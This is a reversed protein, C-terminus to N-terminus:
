TNERKLVEIIEVYNSRSFIESDDKNSIVGFVLDGPVIDATHDIASPCPCQLCEELIIYIGEELDSRPDILDDDPYLPDTGRIVEDGDNIGGDDTDADYPDTGYTNTEDFDSLGDGDSDGDDTPDLPDTNFILVEDGDNVGGEDTDPNLPDTKWVNIEDRDKLGDGDSDLPDDEPVDRPNTGQEVEEGDIVGGADTDPNRPDTGHKYENLNNLKDNDSHILADSPDFPDLGHLREWYSPMGDGDDDIVSCDFVTLVRDAMAIFEGRDLPDEPDMAEQPTVIYPNRVYGQKIMYPNLNQAIEMYPRYWPEGDQVDGMEIVQKRELAELIVKVAEARSITEEPRFPTKGSVTDIEGLYGTVFGQFNAEKVIAYYWPLDGEMYPIDTFLSPSEYASPRPIICFIDLMIKAFEARQIPENIGFKIRNGAPIGELINRQNLNIISDYYPHDETVDTFPSTAKQLPSQGYILEEADNFGDGDTDPNLPNSLAMYEELNTLGDGDSDIQADAPDDPDLGYVLEWQDPMGDNDGDFKPGMKKGGEVFVKFKDASVFEVGDDSNVAIYFEGLVTQKDLLIQIILPDDLTANQRLKLTLRSDFVYFNGGTDLLAARKETSTEIIETAGPYSPDDAPIKEFKFDDLTDLDKNHVGKFVSVTAEDYPYDPPDITTDTNIDPVLFMTFIVKGDPDKVVIRTPLLPMEAPLVELSYDEDYLVVQGTEPNIEGIVEGNANKIILSDDLNLDDIIIEGDTDTLYQGNHNASDTVIKDIVGGRDRLVSVPIESDVPDIGGRIVGDRASSEDLSIAPVYINITIEQGSVNGAEDMVNLAVKRQNLDEYPGLTFLPDDFDNNAIGDGDFDENINLDNGLNRDNTPDGDNNEDINLRTDIWYGLIDGQTDFSKTADITLKKFISVNREANGVNPFPPQSDACISPAMLTAPGFTSRSGVKDFSAIKTYYFGNPLTLPLSPNEPNAVRELQLQEKPFLRAYSGDLLRILGRGDGTSTLKNGYDLMMGDIVIQEDVTEEPNIVEVIGSTVSMTLGSTYRVPIKFYDNKEITIVGQNAGEENFSLESDALAHVIQGSKVPENAGELMAVHKFGDVKVDGNIDDATLYAKKISNVSFWSGEGPTYEMDRIEADEVVAAVRTVPQNLNQEYNDPSLTYILEYGSVDGRAAEWSMEVTKNNSYNASFKNVATADPIFDNLDKNEVAGSYYKKQQNFKYNEKLYVNGGYSFVIDQDNDNEMDLFVMKSPMDADDTYNLLRESMGLENIIFIGKNSVASDSLGPTSPVDPISVDALYKLDSDIKATVRQGTPSLADNAMKFIRDTYSDLESLKEVLLGSTNTKAIHNGVSPESTEYPLYENVDPVQALMRGMYELDTGGGVSDFVKEQEDMYAILSDRMATLRKQSEYEAPLENPISNKVEAIPKNLLPDDVALLKQTGELEIDQVNEALLAYKKADRELADYSNVLGTVSNGLNPNIQNLLNIGNYSLDVTVGEEPLPSQPSTYKEATAAANQMQKNLVKVIDTTVANASEAITEVFDMVPNFDLQFNMHGIVEIRSVYDYEVAPLQLNLGLDIPLLPNLPRETLQEIHPKLLAEPVPILGKKLLCLIRMIEKLLSITVRISVPFEPIEPPPPLDPLSPLPLPPLDPLEMMLNPPEPLLPIEPLVFKVTPLDPIRVRPIKPIILPEPKFKINPWLVTVGAQIQSVDIYIDPLKPFPIIPPEPIVAFIKLLLEMLTFRASSCRDCSAQYDITLEILAQWNKLTEVANRMMEIWADVRAQQKHIYGGTYKIIADMYCIIQYAYKTFMSRWALIQRPLEKWKELIEINKEIKKILDNADVLLKDCNTQYESDSDCSWVEKVREVETELDVKWQEWDRQIKEIERKTLSPIKIVVDKSQVQILPISNIYALAQTFSNMNEAKPFGAQQDPNQQAADEDPNFAGVLSSPQPYIFYLDPLDTLKNIIEESQRDLWNTLVSPFGPIRFNTSVSARYEYNGLSTSGSFGGTSTRGSADASGEVSGDSSIASLESGVSNVAAVAGAIAGNINGAIEDCMAAPALDDVKFAWCQGGLYPGVCIGMALSMTLTPSLYMRFLSGQYPSPPWVPVPSPVGAGFVPLGPDFGAPVGMANIPGPAFYAFNIPMPICGSSCTLAALAAELGDGIDELQDNLGYKDQTQPSNQYASLADPIGDNNADQDLESYDMGNASTAQQVPAPPPTIYTNYDMKRTEPDQGASYFYTMRGTPNGAPSAGIDPFQDSPYNNDLDNGTLIKVQPTKELTASYTITRSEGAHLTGLSFIYPNMSKSTDLVEFNEGCDECSISSEDLNLTEPIVDSVMVNNLDVAGAADNSVTLTYKIEDGRRASNLPETLDEVRKESKVGLRPDLDLYIFDLTSTSESIEINMKLGQATVQKVNEIAAEQDPLLNDGGAPVSFPKFNVDDLTGPQNAPSGDYYVVVEDKLNDGPNVKIGLSGVLEGKKEIEGANNYFIRVAGADDSTVLDPYGDLNMDESKLSYIRNKSDFTELGLNERVFNGSSNRYLDICVEGAKCSDASAIVLDTEGDRDFDSSTMTIIGNPFDLFVGKDEFRPSANNNQLLRVEGSEYAVFLDDLNDGNYDIVSIDQIDENDSIIQSGIDRTFGTGSSKSSRNDIKVTPDGLVVGIESGYVMNSEGVNNGAAFLLMHKNDGTFGVGPVAGAREISIYNLGPLQSGSLETESDTIFLGKSDASSNGSFAFESGINNKSSVLKAYTGSNYNNNLDIEQDAAIRGVDTSADLALVIKAVNVTEDYVSLGLMSDSNSDYTVTFNNNLVDINGNDSLRLVQNGNKTLAAGNTTDVLEYSDNDINMAVFIGEDEGELDDLSDRIQAKIQVKPIVFIEALDRKTDNDTLVLLNPKSSSDSPVFKVEIREKDFINLSGNPNVAALRGAPKPNSLLSIAAQSRAAAGNNEAFIFWGGLYDEEFVNGFDAGLLSAFLVRPMANKFDRGSLTKVSKLEVAALTLSPGGAVVNVPGTLGTGELNFKVVGNEATATTSGMFAAFDKSADTLKINVVSESDNYAFNGDADYLKGTIEVAGSDADFTERNTELELVQSDKPQVEIVTKAPDFGLTTATIAGEGAINKARVTIAALGNIIETENEELFELLNSDQIKFNTPANFNSVLNGNSDVVELAIDSVSAYDSPLSDYQPAMRLYIDNRSRIVTSATIPPLDVLVPNGEEDTELDEEFVEPQFSASLSINGAEETSTVTLDYTGDITSIQIGEADPDEDMSEDLTGPGNVEFTVTSLDTNVINGNVDKLLVRLATSSLGGSRIVPSSPDMEIEAVEQPVVYIEREEVPLYNGDIEASAIMTGALTKSVVETEAEGQAAKVSKPSIKAYAGSLDKAYFKIVSSSDETDLDGNKDLISAKLFLRSEGDAPMEDLYDVFEETEVGGDTVYVFDEEVTDGVIFGGEDGSFYEDDDGNLPDIGIINVEDGDTIGGDDTDPDNPDTGLNYEELNTLGDNDPDTNADAPDYPNLGHEIEWLDPMGDNDSDRNPDIEKQIEELLGSDDSPDLPNTQNIVEVLDMVGGKDTDANIQSTAYIYKEYNDPLGDGDKDENMCDFRDTFNSVMIAFERKTIFGSLWEIFKSNPNQIHAKFWTKFEDANFQDVEYFRGTPFLGEEQASLVYNYYWPTGSVTTDSLNLGAFSQQRGTELIVKTAEARSIYNQPLFYGTNVSGKYGSVIQRNKGEEVCYKYEDSIDTDPFPSQEYVSDVAKKISDNFRTCQICVAGLNLKVFEERTLLEDPRITGDEYAEIIGRRFINIIKSFGESNASIDSFLLGNAVAPDYNRVLENGDTYGDGDTDEDRPDLNLLIEELDNLGDNDTDPINVAAHATEILAKTFNKVSLNQQNDDNLSALFGRGALLGIAEAMLNFDIFNGEERVIEVKDFDAAIYFEFIKSGNDDTIDFVVPTDAGTNHNMRLNLGEALFLNGSRDLIGIKKDSGGATDILYINGANFKADEDVVSVSYADDSFDKIHVGSLGSYKEFYNKSEDDVTIPVTQDTVFYVSAIVQLTNKNQVGLRVPKDTTSPLAILGYENDSISVMGTQGKVEAIVKGNEDYIIFGNSEGKLFFPNATKVYSVLRIKERTSELTLQNSSIGPRNTSNSIATFFGSDSGSQVTFQATGSTLRVPNNSSTSAINAGDDMVLNLEVETFSDSKQVVGTNSVGEVTITLNDAAGTQLAQKSASLRLAATNEAGDPIGDFDSDNSMPNADQDDPVGDGDLDGGAILQDYYDGPADSISCAMEFSPNNVKNATEAAWENMEEFWKLLPVAFDTPLEISAKIIPDGGGGGSGGGGSGGGGSGGSGGVTGGPPTGGPMTQSKTQLYEADEEQKPFDGNFNMELSDASGSGVFYMTEYGNATKGIFTNEYPNLYKKLVYSHKDDVNMSKWSYADEVKKDYAALLNKNTVTPDEYVDIPYELLSTLSGDIPTTFTVGTEQAIQELEIEKARLIAKAEEIDNAAYINPYKVTRTNGDRDMFSFFRPNDIPITLPTETLSSNALLTEETPEVNKTFSSLKVTNGNLDTATKPIVILSIKKLDTDIIQPDNFTFVKPVPISAPPPLIQGKLIREGIQKYDDIPIGFNNAPVGEAAEDVIGNKNNDIGDAMGFHTLLDAFTFTVEPLPPNITTDILVIEDMPKYASGPAPVTARAEENDYSKIESLYNEVETKYDEFRLAEKFDFCAQHNLESMPVSGTIEKSGMVDYLKKTALDEFCREPNEYNLKSYCGAYGGGSTQDYANFVKSAKVLVSNSGPVGQSGSYLNCDQVSKMAYVPIGKVYQFFNNFSFNVFSVADGIFEDNPAPADLEVKAVVSSSEIMTVPTQLQPDNTLNGNADRIEVFKDIRKEVADNVLKLYRRMLEDKMTIYMPVTAVDSVTKTQGGGLDIDHSSKYRGTFRSWDNINSFYKDFLSRYPTAMQDILGKTQSDPIVQMSGSDVTSGAGPDEDFKGDGDNDNDAVGDEDIKGDEDDDAAPEEDVWDDSNPMPTFRPVPIPGAFTLPMSSFSKPNTPKNIGGILSGYEVEYGNPYGDSDFDYSDMDEDVGCEGSCGDNNQDGPGDEDISGDNDADNDQPTDEDILGDRDNDIGEFPDGNDEDIGEDILGDGDNDVGDAIAYKSGPKLNYFDGDMLPTGPISCDKIQNPVNPVIDCLGFRGEDAEDIEGDGDNDISDGMGHLPSGEEGDGDDDVGNEPDEDILGDGDNDIQDGQKMDKENEAMLKQLLYKNYHNYTLQYLNDIYRIYNHFGQKDMMEFENVLDAYFLKKSFQQFSAADALCSSDKCHYLFNKDFYTALLKNGEDGSLPPKIVGHWVEAKPTENDRNLLYDGSKSDFVYIKDDFDTYPLMSVFRNGEKNVVPLPVDGVLVIGKLKNVEGKVGDGEFYLKELSAAIDEVKENAAVNIIVPKTYEESRQVDRAYRKIRDPLKRIKLSNPYQNALGEYQETNEMLSKEVLIAVIGNHPLAQSTRMNTPYLTQLKPLNIAMVLPAHLINTVMFFLFFGALFKRRAATNKTLNEKLYNRIKNLSGSSVNNKRDVFNIEASRIQKNINKM